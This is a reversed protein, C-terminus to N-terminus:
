ESAEQDSAAGDANREAAREQLMKRLRDNDEVAEALDKNLKQNLIVLVINEHNTNALRNQYGLVIDEGPIAINEETAM